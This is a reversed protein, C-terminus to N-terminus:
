ELEDISYLVENYLEGSHDGLGQLLTLMNFASDQETYRRVIPFGDQDYSLFYDKGPLFFEDTQNQRTTTLLTETIAPIQQNINILSNRDVYSVSSMLGTVLNRVMGQLFAVNQQQQPGTGVLSSVIIGINRSNLKPVVDNRFAFSVVNESLRQALDRTFIPFPAISVAFVNRRNEELILIAAIMAASAGGLSHGCCIVRGTCGDILQRAQSIIWRAANLVGRHAKGGAFDVRTFDLVVLFDGPEAAGRVSILIDDGSKAAFFYPMTTSGGGRTIERVFPAPLEAGPFVLESMEAGLRILDMDIPM